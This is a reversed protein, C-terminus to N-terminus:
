ISSVKKHLVEIEDVLDAFAVKFEPLILDRPIDVVKVQEQL